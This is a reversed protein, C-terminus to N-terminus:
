RRWIFNQPKIRKFMDRIQYIIRTRADFDGECDITATIPNPPLRKLIQKALETKNLEPNSLIILRVDSKWEREVTRVLWKPLDRANSQIPTGSLDLGLYKHALGIACIIWRRRKKSVANLSRDWDFEAPRNKVLYYIDWLKDKFEGGDALWHVCVIRLHDEASLVRVPTEDIKVLKSFRYLYEWPQTDLHRFGNHLDINIYKADDSDIIRKAEAFNEPSVGLDIDTFMRMGYEPYYRAIDWGKILIPEIGGARLLQFVEVIKTEALKTRLISWRFADEM